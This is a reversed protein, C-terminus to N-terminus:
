ARSASVILFLGLVVLAGGALTQWAIAERTVGWSVAVIMLYAGGVVMPYATAPPLQRLAVAYAVFSVGLLALAALYLDSIPGVPTPLRFLLARDQGAERLAISSAANCASSVLIILVALLSM